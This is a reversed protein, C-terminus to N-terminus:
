KSYFFLSCKYQLSFTISELLLTPQNTNHANSYLINLSVLECDGIGRSLLAIRISQASDGLGVSAAVYSVYNFFSPDIVPPPTTPQMFVESFSFAFFM